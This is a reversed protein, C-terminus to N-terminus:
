EGYSAHYTALADEASSCDASVEDYYANALYYEDDAIYGLVDILGDKCDIFASAVDELATTEAALQARADEVQAKENALERQRRALTAVDAESRLLARRASKVKAAMANVERTRANLGASRVVLLDNLSRVNRELTSARREWRDARDYNTWALYGTLALAGLLLGYSTVIAAVKLRGRARSV